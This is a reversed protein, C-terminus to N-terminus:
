LIMMFVSLLSPLICCAKPRELCISCPSNFGTPDGCSGIQEAAQTSTCMSAGAEQGIDDQCSHRRESKRQKKLLERCARQASM